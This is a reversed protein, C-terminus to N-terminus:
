PGSRREQLEKEVRGLYARLRESDDLRGQALRELSRSRAAEYLVQMQEDGFHCCAPSSPLAAPRGDRPAEAEDLFLQLLMVTLIMGNIHDETGHLEPVPRWHDQCFLEIRQAGFPLSPKPRPGGNGVQM